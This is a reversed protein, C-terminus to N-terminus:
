FKGCVKVQKAAIAKIKKHTKEPIDITMRLINKSM